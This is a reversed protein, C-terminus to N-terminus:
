PVKRRGATSPRPAAPRSRIVLVPCEAHRVVREATSGLLVHQLGTRGHTAMVILDAGIDRAADVIAQFPLGERIESTTRIGLFRSTQLAGFDRNVRERWDSVDMTQHPFDPRFHPFELVHLLRLSAGSQRALSAAYSLAPKGSDSFDVPVLITKLRPLGRGSSSRSAARKSPTRPQTKM